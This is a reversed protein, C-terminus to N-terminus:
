AVVLFIPYAVKAKRALMVLLFVATLLGLIALINDHM